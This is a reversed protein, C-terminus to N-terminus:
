SGNKGVGPSTSTQEQKKKYEAKKKGACSIRPALTVTWCRKAWLVMLKEGNKPEGAL